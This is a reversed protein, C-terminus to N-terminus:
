VLEDGPLPSTSKGRFLVPFFPLVLFITAGFALFAIPYGTAKALVGGLGLGIGQGVNTVAMLISYMSAAIAPTTYKMALAFYVAQGAGYAAGFIAAAAYALPLNPAFAVCALAAAVAIMVVVLAPRDGARDLIAGGLFAGLVCGVGWVTTVLGATSLDIGLRETFAPNMLQNAGVVVMFIVLGVGAAALVQASKFARFASWNFREGSARPIERVFPLLLFPLLSAAALFYFVMAWSSEAIVGAISAAVIVGLSRGGVMFGQLLGKEDPPTVDLALGDTCTDYLAMGMQLLFAVGVFGWYQKGPNISAAAVLCAIQIILGMFIYPKRRGLGLLNFRDSLMGFLIKIVFPILAISSFIGVDAIDLGNSLLYLANLASFYGLVIGQTLYLSGFLGFRLIKPQPKM